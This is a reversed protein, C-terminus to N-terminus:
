FVPMEAPSPINAAPVDVGGGSPPEGAPAPMDAGPPPRVGGPAADSAEGPKPIPQPKYDPPLDTPM